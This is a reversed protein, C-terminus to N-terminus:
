SHELLVLYELSLYVSVASYKLRVAICYCNSLTHVRSEILNNNELLSCFDSVFLKMCILMNVSFM